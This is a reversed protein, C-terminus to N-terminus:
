QIDNLEPDFDDTDSVVEPNTNQEYRLDNELPDITNFEQEEVMPENIYTKTKPDYDKEASARNATLDNEMDRTNRDAKAEDMKKKAKDLPNDTPVPKKNEAEVKDEFKKLQRGAFDRGGLGFALAFAVSLGGLVLLFAINVISSAFQIQELTMFVAFVIIIYKAIAASYPSKAYKNILGEVFYGALIGGGIILLGSIILPLYAIIGYGVTNLVELNLISLAEVTIFLLILGKVINGILKSLNFEINDQEIWSFVNQIGMRDLLDELLDGIFNAIYYGIVILIIAVLLNPIMLMVKNLVVLIPETLTTIQLTQLASTTVPILVLGFVVKSLVDALTSRQTANVTTNKSKPTLKNAWKDINATQLVTFTLDKLIKAVFYGVFLIIAAGLINPIFGLLNNMMGTIPGSVSNMNLADFIGPLFLLFVLFYAIKAIDKVRNKGYEPDPVKKGKSLHYHVNMKVLIKEVLKKVLSAVLWAVLFLLLAKFVSPIFSLIDELIRNFTITIDKM